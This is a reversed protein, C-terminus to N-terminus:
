CPCTGCGEGKACGGAAGRAADGLRDGGRSSDHEVGLRAVHGNEVRLGIGDRSGARDVGHQTPQGVGLTEPIAPTDPRIVERSTLDLGDGDIRHRPLDHSPDPDAPSPGPVAQYETRVQAM